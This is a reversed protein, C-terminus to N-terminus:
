RQALLTSVVYRINLWLLGLSYAISAWKGVAILDVMPVGEDWFQQLILGNKKRRERWTGLTNLLLSGEYSLRSPRQKGNRESASPQFSVSCNLIMKDLNQSSLSPTQHLRSHLQPRTKPPIKRHWSGGSISSESVALWETTYADFIGGHPRPPIGSATGTGCMLKDM